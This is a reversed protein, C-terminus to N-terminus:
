VRKSARSNARSNAHCKAVAPLEPVTKPFRLPEVSAEQELDRLRKTRPLRDDLIGEM